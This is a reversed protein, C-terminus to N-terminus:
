GIWEIPSDIEEAEREVWAWAEGEDEFIQTAPASGGRGGSCVRRSMIMSGTSGPKSTCSIGRWPEVPLAV